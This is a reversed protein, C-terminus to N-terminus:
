FPKLFNYNEDYNLMQEVFNSPYEVKIDTINGEKDTVPVLVPNIFGSYPAINLPEFRKLVEKHLKPDVKVGYNEVLDKGAKFDGESKIRQIERLLEGFLVRLKEYDNVKFYTKGDKETREIVNDKKGKEFAWAAVLQRNRMHSEEIDKGVEIRRLQTMMGNRIYNDYEARGVDLSEMLGLDILKQDMLFYLGVLDARAEELTSAYSKLTEKPTGVGPNLQGSAHGVVEHLATHLNDSVTSHKKDRTKEEDDFGFEDITSGGSAAGYANIINGLSVSKSGHEARIWDSNPLNIGIPTAPSADGSEGVVNVVKYTVGTVKKKKHEDMIPSNDEFWQINDTLVQMRKSADFDNMQVVSEFTGRYGKADGYVEIFGNIYDIDGETAETWAISYDDWDKLDGTQYYKILLELAKKQPENEAVEVAKGLWFAVKELASGYMGGIKWPIEELEGQDNLVLKSNLGYSIPQKDNPNRRKKYFEEVMADTVGEGYFNNASGPVLGKTPDLNVRKADVNPNFIAELAGESMTINAASLLESFYDKSFNPKFKDMSYHHHIGNAFWVQKAYTLFNNWDETEEGNHGRVITDIAKRIELNHKYNQDYIIDRGALGAQTLYYVLKKQQLTLQDFGDIKYRLIRIDAFRDAEYQFDDSQESVAASDKSEKKSQDCAILAGIVFASVLIKKM